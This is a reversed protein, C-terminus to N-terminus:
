GVEVGLDLPEDAPLFAPQRFPVFRQDGPVYLPHRPLGSSTLGLCHPTVDLQAAIAEVDTPALRLRKKATLTALWAGWAFVVLDARQMADAVYRENAPGVPDDLSLLREPKTARAAFLNVVELRAFGHVQAFTKCRRITPDDNATDATSPNLMVYLVTGDGTLWDRTLLYRYDGPENM